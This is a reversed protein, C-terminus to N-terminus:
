ACLLQTKARNRLRKTEPTCIQYAMAQTYEPIETALRVKYGLTLMLSNYGGTYVVNYCRLVNGPLGVRQAILADVAQAVFDRSTPADIDLEAFEQQLYLLTGGPTRQKLCCTMYIMGYPLQQVLAAFYEIQVQTLPASYDLWVMPSAIPTERAHSTTKWLGYDGQVIDYHLVDELSANIVIANDPCHVVTHLATAYNQEVGYYCLTHEPLTTNMSAAFGLLKEFYWSEGPLSIVPIKPAPTGARLIIEPLASVMQTAIGYRVLSKHPNTELRSLVKRNM